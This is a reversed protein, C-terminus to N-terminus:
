GRPACRARDRTRYRGATTAQREPWTAPSRSDRASPTRRGSAARNVARQGRTSACPVRPDPESGTGARAGQATVAADSRRPPATPVPRNPLRLTEGLTDRRLVLRSAAPPPPPVPSSQDWTRFTESLVPGPAPVLLDLAREVESGYDCRRACKALFLESPEDACGIKRRPPGLRLPNAIQGQHDRGSMPGVVTLVAGAAPLGLHLNDRAQHRRRASHAVHWAGRFGAVTWRRGLARQEPAPLLHPRGLRTRRPGKPPLDRSSDGHSADPEPRAFPQASNRQRLPEGTGGEDCRFEFERGVIQPERVGRGHCRGRPKGIRPDIWILLAPLPPM